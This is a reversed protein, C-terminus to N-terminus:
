SLSLAVLVFLIRHVRDPHHREVYTPREVMPIVFVTPFITCREINRRDPLMRGVENAKLFALAPIHIGVAFLKWLVLIHHPWLSTFFIEPVAVGSEPLRLAKSKDVRAAEPQASCWM